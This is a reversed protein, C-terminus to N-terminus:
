TATRAIVSGNDTTLTLSRASDPAARVSQEQSGHDTEMTVRYTEGDDPVVVEVSGNDSSAEVTIPAVAFELEIRGNDTDARVTASRLATGTLRGNDTEAAVPGSVDTLEVTGNDGDVDVAATTGSIEVRGNHADVTVPVDRPVRVEYDVWCFNSGISPCAARLELVGDVIERREGTRRLGESIEARVTIEDTDSAVVRVSGNASDVALARVDAAAFTENEVREEHALLTVVNYTGWALSGVILLGAFIRWLVAIPGRTRPPHQGIPEPPPETPPPTTTTMTTMTLDEGM